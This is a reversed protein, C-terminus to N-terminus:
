IIFHMIHFDEQVFQKLKVGLVGFGIHTNGNGYRTIKCGQFKDAGILGLRQIVLVLRPPHKLRPQVPINGRFVPFVVATYPPIKEGQLAKDGERDIIIFRIDSAGVPVGRFLPVNNRRVKSRGSKEFMGGRRSVPPRYDIYMGDHATFHTIM